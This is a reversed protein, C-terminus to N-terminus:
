SKVHRKGHCRSIRSWVQLNKELDNYESVTTDALRRQHILKYVFLEGTLVLCVM